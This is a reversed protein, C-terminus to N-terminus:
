RLWLCPYDASTEGINEWGREEIEKYLAERQFKLNEKFYELMISLFPLTETM